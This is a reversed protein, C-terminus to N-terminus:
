ASLLTAAVGIAVGGAATTITKILGPTRAASLVADKTRQAFSKTSPAAIGRADVIYLM